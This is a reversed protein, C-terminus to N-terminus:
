SGTPPGGSGNPVPRREPRDGAGGLGSGDLSIGEALL